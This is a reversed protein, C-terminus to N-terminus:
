LPVRLVEGTGPAAGFGRNSIYLAGDPGIVMATPFYLGSVVVSRAGRGDQRVRVERGSGPAFVETSAAELVYLSGRHLKLGLIKTFGTAWAETRGNRTM